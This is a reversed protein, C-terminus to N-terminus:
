QGALSLLQQEIMSAVAQAQRDNSNRAAALRQLTDNADMGLRELGQALGNRVDDARLGYTRSLSQLYQHTREQDQYQRDRSLEGSRRSDNIDNMSRDYGIDTERQNRDIGSTQNNYDNVNAQRAMLNGVNAREWPRNLSNSLFSGGAAANSAADEQMFQKDYDARRNANDFGTRAIGRQEGLYINSSDRTRGAIDTQGALRQQLNTWERGTFRHADLNRAAAVDVDRYRSEGLQDMENRANIRQNGQEFGLRRTTADMQLGLDTSAGTYQGAQQALQTALYNRMVEFQQAQQQQYNDGARFAAEPDPAIGTGGTAAMWQDNGRITSTASGPNDYMWPGSHRGPQQPQLNTPPLRVNGGVHGSMPDLGATPSTPSPRSANTMPTDLSALSLGGPVSGKKLGQNVRPQTFGAMTPTGLAM